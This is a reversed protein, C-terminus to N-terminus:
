YRNRGSGGGERRQGGRFGGGPAAGERREMPRAENVILARGSLPRGNLAQIARQAMDADQIEVFGFGRAEGSFRDRMVNVNDVTIGAEAFFDQLETETATYPLNGIFLRM